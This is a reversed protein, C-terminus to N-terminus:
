GGASPGRRGPRWSCTGGGDGSLPNYDASRLPKKDSKRKIVTTSPEDETSQSASRKYSKGQQMSDWIEIKQRRKQEDQQKQKEKFVAAKADLEEQMRRRAAEMAEQRKAVQSTDHPTPQVSDRLGPTSHKKKHLYQILAYLLAAAALLYWGYVSLVEGATAAVSSMDQNRLPKQQQEVPPLDGDENM